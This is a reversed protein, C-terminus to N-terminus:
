EDTTGAALKYLPKYSGNAKREIVVHMMVGQDAKQLMDVLYPNHTSVISLDNPYNDMTYKIIACQLAAAEEPNTSNLFEDYWTLSKKGYGRCQELLKHHVKISSVEMAYLSKDTNPDERPEKFTFIVDVPTLEVECAPVIGVTQALLVTRIVSQTIVSKGCANPGMVGLTSCAKGDIHLTNPVAKDADMATNWFDNFYLSVPSNEEEHFYQAYTFSNKHGDPNDILRALSLYTAIDALEFVLADFAHINEQIPTM